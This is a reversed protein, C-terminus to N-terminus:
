CFFRLMRSFMPRRRQHRPRAILRASRRAGFREVPEFQVEGQYELQSIARGDEWPSIQPRGSVNCGHSGEEEGEMPERMASVVSGPSSITRRAVRRASKSGKKTM